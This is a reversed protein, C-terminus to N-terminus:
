KKVNGKYNPDLDPRKTGCVRCQQSEKPSKERCIPCVWQAANPDFKYLMNFEAAKLQNIDTKKLLMEFPYDATDNKAVIQQVEPLGAQISNMATNFHRELTERLTTIEEKYKTFNEGNYPLGDLGEDLFKLWDEENKANLLELSKELDGQTFDFFAQKNEGRLFFRIPYTFSLSRRAAVVLGAIDILFDFNKM